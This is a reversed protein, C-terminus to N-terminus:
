CRSGGAIRVKETAASGGSMTKFVLDFEENKIIIM